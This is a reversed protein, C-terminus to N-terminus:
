LTFLERRIDQAPLGLSALHASIAETFQRSGCIYVIPQNIVHEALLARDIRPQRSTEIVTSIGAIEDRFCVQDAAQVSYLMHLNDRPQERLYSMFPAIGVRGAIFLLPRSADLFTFHGFSQSIEMVDGVRAHDHLWTTVEGGPERQITFELWNASPPSSFSYQRVLFKDDTVYTRVIAYQGALFKYSAPREVRITITDISVRDILQIPTKYWRYPEIIM